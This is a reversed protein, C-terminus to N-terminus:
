LSTSCIIFTYLSSFANVNFPCGDTDTIEYRSCRTYMFIYIFILMRKVCCYSACKHPMHVHREDFNCLPIFSSRIPTVYIVPTPIRGNGAKYLKDPAPGTGAWSRSSTCSIPESNVDSVGKTSGSRKATVPYM